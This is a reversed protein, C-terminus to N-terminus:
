SGPFQIGGSRPSHQPIQERNPNQGPVGQGPVFNDLNGRNPEGGTGRPQWLVGPQRGPSRRQLFAPVHNMMEQGKVKQADTLTGNVLTRFERNANQSIEQMKNRFNQMEEPTANQFNFRQPLTIMAEMMQDQAAQIKAKQDDTLNLARLSEVHIGGGLRMGGTGDPNQAPPNLGGAGQFVMVDLQSVQDASLTKELVKRSETLMRQLHQRMQAADSQQPRPMNALMEQRAAALKQMQDDTVGMATRAEPNTLVGLHGGVMGDIMGAVNGMPGGPQALVM